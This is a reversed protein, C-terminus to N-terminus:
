IRTISKSIRENNGGLKKKLEEMCEELERNETTLRISKKALELIQNVNLGKFYDDQLLKEFESNSLKQIYEDLENAIVKNQEKLFKNEKQLEANQRVVAEYNGKLLKLENIENISLM